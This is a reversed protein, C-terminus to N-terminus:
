ICISGNRGWLMGWITQMLDPARDFVDCKDIIMHLEWCSRKEQKSIFSMKAIHCTVEVDDGREELGFLVLPQEAGLFAHSASTGQCRPQRDSYRIESRTGVEVKLEGEGDDGWASLPVENIHDVTFPCANIMQRMTSQNPVVSAALNM